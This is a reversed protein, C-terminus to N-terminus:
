NKETNSAAIGIESMAYGYLDKFIEIINSTKANRIEEETVGDFLDYLFPLVQDLCKVVMAAIEIKDGRKMAEFNLANIVDVLVGFRVDITNCTYTKVIKKGKYINLKLEM